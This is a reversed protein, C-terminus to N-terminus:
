QLSLSDIGGASVTKNDARECEESLTKGDEGKAEHLFEDRWICNSCVWYQEVRGNVLRSTLILEDKNQKKCYRCSEM